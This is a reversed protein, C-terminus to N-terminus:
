ARRCLLTFYRPVESSDAETFQDLVFRQNLLANLYTALTRHNVEAHGRVGQGQTNWRGEWGYGLEPPWSPLSSGDSAGPFCPHLISASFWGQPKLVASATALAGDLDDIDMLAMNCLVGDFPVHDWWDTTTVDGHLYRIGLPRQLEVTEAHAILKSSLDVATMHAGRTALYRAATGYGCAMDLVREGSVIEPLLAVPQSPWESTFDVYWDAIEDYRSRSATVRRDYPRYGLSPSSSGRWGQRDASVIAAPLWVSGRADWM